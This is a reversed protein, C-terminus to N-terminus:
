LGEGAMIRLTLTEGARDVKVEVEQGVLVKEGQKRLDAQTSIEKGMFHTIQDGPKVGAEAAPGKPLVAHVLLKGDADRPELGLFGRPKPEPPKGM